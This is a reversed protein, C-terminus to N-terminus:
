TSVRFTTSETRSGSGCAAIQDSPGQPEGAAQNEATRRWLRCCGARPVRYLIQSHLGQVYYIYWGDRPQYVGGMRDHGQGGLHVGCAHKWFAASNGDRVPYSSGAFLLMAVVPAFIVLVVVSRKIWTSMMRAGLTRALGIMVGM